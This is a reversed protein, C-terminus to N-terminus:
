LLLIKLRWLGAGLHIRKSLKVIDRIDRICSYGLITESYNSFSFLNGFYASFLFFCLHSNFWCISYHLIGALAQTLFTFKHFWLFIFYWLILFLIIVWDMWQTIWSINLAPRSWWLYKPCLSISVYILFIVGERLTLVAIPTPPLWLFMHLLIPQILVTIPYDCSVWLCQILSEPPSLFLTLCNPWLFHETPCVLMISSATRCTAPWWIQPQLIFSSTWWKDCEVNKHRTYIYDSLWHALCLYINIYDLSQRFCTDKSM